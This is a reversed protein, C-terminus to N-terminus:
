RTNRESRAPNRNVLTVQNPLALRVASVCPTTLGLRPPERGVRSGPLGYLHAPYPVIKTADRESALDNCLHAAQSGDPLSTSRVDNSAAAPHPFSRPVSASKRKVKGWQRNVNRRRLDPVLGWAAAAASLGVFWVSGISRKVSNADWRM